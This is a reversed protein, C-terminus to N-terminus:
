VFVSYRGETDTYTVDVRDDSRWWVYRFIEVEAGAVVLVGRPTLCQVTGHITFNM